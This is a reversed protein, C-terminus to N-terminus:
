LWVETESTKNEPLSAPQGEAYLKDGGSESISFLAKKEPVLKGETNVDSESGNKNRTSKDGMYIHIDPVLKKGGETQDESPGEFLNKDGSNKIPAPVLTCAKEYLYPDNRKGTGSRVLKGLRTLERIAKRKFSNRGEVADNIEPETLPLTEFCALINKEMGEVEANERSPGLSLRKTAEDFQLVTEPLDEGIRQVTCLTRFNKTRKMVLLTSVAGGLATSGIPADIAEAKALKSSHHLCHIHTGTERAVDILPGLAAYMESYSKEDRVSILRFLPDVVLLAPKMKRLIDVVDLSTGFGAVQIPETGDAGLSRFDSTIEEFREELALYLVAGQKVAWGLFSEGRAVALALNRAFTSKGVKPKSVVISVSGAALRDRLIWDVPIVPRSLLDGLGVLQFGNARTSDPAGAPYRKVIDAAISRVKEEPLPPDCKAANEALLAAEITAPAVGRKQLTGALSVLRNTRSGKGVVQPSAETTAAPMPVRVTLRQVVWEPLTALPVPPDIFRYLKGSAHGSPPCVAYGGTGRVDIHPGIKGSNNNRVDVEPPLRYYFHAGGDERGTQATLTQPFLFGKAELAAQSSRGGAGDIDVIVVGSSVGTALGWNCGVFEAAWAELQTINSTARHQWKTFGRPPVKGRDRLVYSDDDPRCLPFLYWGRKALEVIEPPVAASTLSQKTRESNTM